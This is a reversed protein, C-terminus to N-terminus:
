GPSGSARPDFSLRPAAAWCGCPQTTAAAPPPLEPWGAVCTSTARRAPASTPSQGSRWAVAHSSGDPGNSIGAVLGRNNVALAISDVGTAPNHGGLSGLDRIGDRDWLFAHSEGGSRAAYGVVDGRENLATPNSFEGGLTGLDTMVGRRWLFGHSQGAATQSYGTVAGAENLASVFSYEGGLTGLPVVGQRTWLVAGANTRGAVLGHDNVAVAFEANTPDLIETHGRRWRVAYGLNDTASRSTGVVVDAANIGAAWSWGDAPGLDAMEGDRWLFAHSRGDATRSDGIVHGAENVAVAASFDGGLTGLDTMVGRQWLFAHTRGDARTSHGVVIGRDNIDVASSESGGLTGLEVVAPGHTRDSAAAETPAAALCAALATVVATAKLGRVATPRAHSGAVRRDQWLRSRPMGPSVRIRSRPEDSPLMLDGFAPGADPNSITMAAVRDANGALLALTGGLRGALETGNGYAAAALAGPQWNRARACSSWGRRGLELDVGREQGENDYIIAARLM